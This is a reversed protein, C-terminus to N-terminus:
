IKGTRVAEAWPMQWEPTVVWTTVNRRVIKIDPSWGATLDKLLAPDDPLTILRQMARRGLDKLRADDNNFAAQRADHLERENLLATMFEVSMETEALIANAQTTYAAVAANMMDPTVGNPLHTPLKGSAIAERRMAGAPVEGIAQVVAAEAAQGAAMIAADAESVTL